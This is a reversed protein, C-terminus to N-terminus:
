SDRQLSVLLGLGLSRLLLPGTAMPSIGIGGFWVHNRVRQADLVRGISHSFPLMWATEKASQELKISDLTVSKLYSIRQGSIREGPSLESIWLEVIRFLYKQQNFLKHMKPTSWTNYCNTHLDIPLVKRKITAKKLSPTNSYFELKM